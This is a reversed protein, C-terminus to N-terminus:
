NRSLSGVDIPITEDFSPWSSDWMSSVFSLVFNQFKSYSTVVPSVWFYNVWFFNNQSCTYVRLITERKFMLRCSRISPLMSKVLRFVIHCHVICEKLSEFSHCSEHFHISESVLQIGLQIFSICVLAMNLPSSFSGNIQLIFQNEERLKGMMISSHRKENKRTWLPYCVSMTAQGFVLENEHMKCVQSLIPENGFFPRETNLKVLGSFSFETNSM